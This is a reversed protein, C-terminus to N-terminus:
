GAVLLSNKNQYLELILRGIPDDKGQQEAYIYLQRGVERWGFPQKVLPLSNIQSTIEKFEKLTTEIGARSESGRKWEDILQAEFLAPQDSTPPNHLRPEFGRRLSDAATRKLPPDGAFLFEDSSHDTM